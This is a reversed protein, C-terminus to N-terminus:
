EPRSPGISNNRTIGELLTEVFRRPRVKLLYFVALPPFVLFAPAFGLFTILLMIWVNAPYVRWEIQVERECSTMFFDGSLPIGRSTATSFWFRTPSPTDAACGSATLLAALRASIEAIEGPIKLVGGSQWGPSRPGHLPPDPSGALVYPGPELKAQSPETFGCSSCSLGGERWCDTHHWAMCSPCGQKLGEGLIDTHCFPCRNAAVHVDDREAPEPERRPREKFKM